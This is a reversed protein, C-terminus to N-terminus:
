RRTILEFNAKNLIRALAEAAAADDTEQSQLRSWGGAALKRAANKAVGHDRLWKEFDVSNAFVPSSAAASAKKEVPIAQERVFSAEWIHAETVDGNATKKLAYSAAIGDIGHLLEQRLLNGRETNLAIRGTLRLGTGDERAEVWRGVVDAPDHNWTMIPLTGASKHFELSAKFAGPKIEATGYKSSSNFLVAYAEIVGGDLRSRDITLSVPATCYCSSFVTTGSSNKVTTM